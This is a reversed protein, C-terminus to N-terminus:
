KVVVCKFTKQAENKTVRIFYIGSALSSTNYSIKNEGASKGNYLEGINKGDVSFLSISVKSADFNNVSINIPSGAESLSSVQIFDAWNETASVSSIVSPSMIWNTIITDLPNVGSLHHAVWHGAEDICFKNFNWAVHANSVGNLDERQLWKYIECTDASITAIKSMMQFAVGYNSTCFDNITSDDHPDQSGFDNCPFGIIEFNYQHYQSYLTDLDVFQPTYACFSATNVVLIKKGYFQNMSITDGNIAAASFDHFTQFSQASVNFTLTALSLITFLKKMKFASAGAFYKLTIQQTLLHLEM